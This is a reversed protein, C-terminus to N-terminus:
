RRGGKRTVHRNDAYVKAGKTIREEAEKDWTGDPLAGKLRKAINPDFKPSDAGDGPSPGTRGDVHASGSVGTRHGYLGGMRPKLGLEWGASNAADLVARPNSKVADGMENLIRNAMQYQRSSSNHLDPWRNYAETNYKSKKQAFDHQHVEERVVNRAAEQIRKEAILKDLDAHKEEPVQSRLAELQAATASALDAGQAQPAQTRGSLMGKLEALENRLPGVVEDNVRRLIEGRLNKYSPEGSSADARQENGSQNGRDPEPSDPATEPSTDEFAPSSDAPADQAAQKLASNVMDPAM